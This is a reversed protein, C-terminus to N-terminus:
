DFMANYLETSDVAPQPRAQSSYDNKRETGDVPKFAGCREDFKALCMTQASMEIVLSLRRVLQDLGDVKDGTSARHFMYPDYPSTIIILNSAIAKDRFRSPAMVEDGAGYPDTMRLLDSYVISAPRLEDLIITHQGAYEQFIDRSSGSIFYDTGAKAAQVRALSTKGTGAPGYIWIVKIPEGKERMEKRFAEARNQLYKAWVDDIQRRYRAYESGTLRSELEAKTIEGKYLLDLFVNIDISSKAKAKAIEVNMKYM